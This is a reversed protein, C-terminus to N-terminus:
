DHLSVFGNFLSQDGIGGDRAGYWGEENGRGPSRNMPGKGTAGFIAPADAM